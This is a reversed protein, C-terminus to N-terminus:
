IDQWGALTRRNLHQQGIFAGAVGFVVSERATRRWHLGCAHHRLPKDGTRAGRHPFDSLPAGCSGQALRLGAGDDARLGSASQGMHAFYSM